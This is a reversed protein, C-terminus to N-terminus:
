QNPVPDLRFFRLGTYAKAQVADGEITLKVHNIGKHLIFVSGEDYIRDLVPFDLLGRGKDPLCWEMAELREVIPRWTNRGTTLWSDMGRREGPPFMELGLRPPLGDATVDLAMQFRSSVERMSALVDVVKLVPGPWGVRELLHPVEEAEVSRVILRIARPKRGPMAGIHVVESGPPLAAFAQEVARREDEDRAWCVADVIRDALQGPTPLHPAPRRSGPGTELRLYIGPDPREGSPVEAIDYELMASNFWDAGTETMRAFVRGLAAAPSDPKAAKGRGIYYELLAQGPRVQVCFDAAPEAVGLRFEFSAGAAIEWGPLDRIRNMLRDWGPGDLLLRPIFRRLAPFVSLLDESM